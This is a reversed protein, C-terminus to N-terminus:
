LILRLFIFDFVLWIVSITLIVKGLTTGRMLILSTLIGIAPLGVLALMAGLNKDITFSFVIAALYLGLIISYKLTSGRPLIISVLGVIILAALFIYATTNM